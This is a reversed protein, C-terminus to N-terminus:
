RGVDDRGHDGDGMIQRDSVENREVVACKM